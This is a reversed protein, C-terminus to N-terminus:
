KFAQTYAATAKPISSGLPDISDTYTDFYSEFAFDDNKFIQGLDAVYSADDPKGSDIGWEPLSLPKGKAAAFDKLNAPSPFDPDSASSSADDTSYARWGEQSVTKLTVCDLDYADIGVIDVYTNGPYWKSIPIDASCSNPNWVFLFHAGAVARMATVENDYCQAWDSMEASTTGVYDAEWTGNAETGLRIVTNGAGYSVLNKALTTAYRNYDGAACVQEWTLPDSNDSATQPILDMSLVIQHEPSKALWAGWGDRTIRFMWPAEWDAWAPAPNAFASVCNYTIGTVSTIHNIVSQRLVGGSFSTTICNAKSDGGTIVGSVSAGGAGLGIILLWISLLAGLLGVPLLLRRRDRLFARKPGRQRRPKAEAASIRCDLSTRSGPLASSAATATM